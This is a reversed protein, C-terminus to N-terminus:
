FPCPIALWTWTGYDCRKTVTSCPRRVRIRIISICVPHPQLTCFRGAKGIWTYMKRRYILVRSVSSRLSDMIYCRHGVACSVHYTCSAVAVCSIPESDARLGLSVQQTMEPYEATKMRYVYLDSDIAITVMGRATDSIYKRGHQMRETMDLMKDPTANLQVKRSTPDKLTIPRHVFM